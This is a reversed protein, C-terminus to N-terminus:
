FDFIWIIKLSSLVGLLNSILRLSYKFFRFQNRPNPLINEKTHPKWFLTSQFIQFQWAIIDIIFM